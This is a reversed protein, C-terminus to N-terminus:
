VYQLFDNEFYIIIKNLLFSFTEFGNWMSLKKEENLSQFTESTKKVDENLIKEIEKKSDNSACNSLISLCVFISYPSFVFNKNKERPISDLLKPLFQNM